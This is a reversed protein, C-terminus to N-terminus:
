FVMLKASIHSSCAYLSKEKARRREGYLELLVHKKMFLGLRDRSSKPIEFFGLVDPINQARGRYAFTFAMCPFTHLVQPFTSRMREMRIISGSVSRFVYMDSQAQM